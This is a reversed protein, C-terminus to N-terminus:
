PASRDSVLGYAVFGGFVQSLGNKSFENWYADRGFQRLIMVYWLMFGLSVPPRYLMVQPSLFCSTFKHVQESKKYFMSTLLVLIPGVCSECMGLIRSLLFLAFPYPFTGLLFRLAFFGGFTPAATHLILVIGWLVVNTGTSSIIIVFTRPKFTKFFHGVWTSLLGQKNHFTCLRFNGCWSAKHHKANREISHPLTHYRVM